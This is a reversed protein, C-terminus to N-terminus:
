QGSSHLEELAHRRTEASMLKDEFTLFTIIVRANEPSIAYNELIGIVTSVESVGIADM